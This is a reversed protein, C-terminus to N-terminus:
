PGLTASKYRRAAASTALTRRPVLGASIGTSCGICRLNIMLRFVAWANPRVKGGDKRKRASSTILYRTPTPMGAASRILKRIRRTKAENGRECGRLSRTIEQFVRRILSGRLFRSIKYPLVEQATNTLGAREHM